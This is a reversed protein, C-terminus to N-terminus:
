ICTYVLMNEYMIYTCICTARLVSYLSVAAIILLDFVRCCYQWANANGYKNQCEDSLSVCPIYLIHVSYTLVVYMTSAYFIYLAQMYMYMYMYAHMSNLLPGCGNPYQKSVMRMHLVPMHMSCMCYTHVGAIIYEPHRPQRLSKHGAFLTTQMCIVCDGYPGSSCSSFKLLQFSIVEVKEKADTASSHVYMYTSISHMRLHLLPLSLFQSYKCTCKTCVCVRVMSDM